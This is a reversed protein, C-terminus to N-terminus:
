FRAVKDPDSHGQLLFKVAYEHLDGDSVAAFVTGNGGGGIEETLRYNKNEVTITKGIYKAM